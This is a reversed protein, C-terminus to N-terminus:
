SLAVDITTLTGSFPSPLPTWKENYALLQINCRGGSTEFTAVTLSGGGIGGAFTVTHAAAITGQVTLVCGDLDKTPDALTMARVTGNLIAIADAGMPPLAIAGDAAYETIIRARGAIMFPASTQPPTTQAWDASTGVTVGSGNAHAKALTGAQGRLVPVQLSAAVYGKAIQMTEDGIRIQYGIGFGTASTVAIKSDSELVAATLTTRALSM